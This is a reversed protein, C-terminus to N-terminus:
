LPRQIGIRLVVRNHRPSTPSVDIVAITDELFNTVYIKKHLTSAVVSYPGRGVLVIDEVHGLGRPDVIYLQGDQFCTVYAREGDGADMVALTSAQRCLDTAGIGVNKPFGTPGLSTDFIQLSPPKRNVLYLRDGSPSFAMSRTDYSGGSNGGVLNLFFYNGPILYPAAGNTPRGVTLTQIRDESRSGVYIIDGVGGTTRGAVATSGRVGTLPDAAFLGYFVDAIYANRGIPSDILTVSSPTPPTATLHTVVAVQSASDVFVDFPEDPM